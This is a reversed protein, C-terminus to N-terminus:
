KIEGSQLERDFYYIQSEYGHLMFNSNIIWGGLVIYNQFVADGNGGGRVWTLPYNIGNLYMKNGVMNGTGTMVAGLHYWTNDTPTVGTSYPYSVGSNYGAGGDSDPWFCADYEYFGLLMEGNNAGTHNFFM